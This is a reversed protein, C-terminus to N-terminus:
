EILFLSNKLDNKAIKSSTESVIFTTLTHELRYILAAIVDFNAKSMKETEKTGM